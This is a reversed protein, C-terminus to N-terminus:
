CKNWCSEPLGDFLRFQSFASPQTSFARYDYLHRKSQVNGHGKAARLACVAIECRVDKRSQDKVFVHVAQAAFYSRGFLSHLLDDPEELAADIRGVETSASWSKQIYCLQFADKDGNPLIDVNMGFSLDRHFTRWARKRLGHEIYQNTISDIADAEAHLRKHISFR